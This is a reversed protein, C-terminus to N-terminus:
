HTFVHNGIRTAVPRRSIWGANTAIEPNYFFLSGRTPDYGSIAARAAELSKRDPYLNIQGDFTICFQGEQMIVKRITEPFKPDQVRNLVVAGVAVQGEFSEGRSEGYIVRALLLVEDQPVDFYYLGSILDQPVSELTEPGVVGDVHLQNEKQFKRVAEETLPGFIGDIERPDYFGKKALVHQLVAIDTGEMGSRLLRDGLEIFYAAETYFNYSILILAILLPLFVFRLKGM